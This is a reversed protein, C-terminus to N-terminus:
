MDCLMSVAGVYQRAWDLRVVSNSFLVDKYLIASFDGYVWVIRVESESRSQLCYSALLSKLLQEM